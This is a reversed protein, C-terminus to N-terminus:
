SPWAPVGIAFSGCLEGALGLRVIEIAEDWVCLGTDDVKGNPLKVQVRYHRVDHIKWSPHIKFPGMFDSMLFDHWNGCLPHQISGGVSDFQVKVFGPLGLQIIATCGKLEERDGLYKLNAM